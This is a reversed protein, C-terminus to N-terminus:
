LTNKGTSEFDSQAGYSGNAKVTNGVVDLDLLVNTLRSMGGTAKALLKLPANALRSNMLDVIIEGAPDVAGAKGSQILVGTFSATM